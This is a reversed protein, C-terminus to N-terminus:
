MCERRPGHGDLPPLEEERDASDVGERKEACQERGGRQAAHQSDRGCYMVRTFLGYQVRTKKKWRNRSTVGFACVFCMCVYM